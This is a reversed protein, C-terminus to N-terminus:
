VQEEEVMESFKRKLAVIKQYISDNSELIDKNEYLFMAIYVLLAGTTSLGAIFFLGKFSALTLEDFTQVGPNIDPCDDERGLWKDSINRMQGEIVKLIARSFTDVHPSGKPFAFGIGATKYTPGVILYKNCYKAQLLKLFPIGDVIASVGNNKSGDSLAKDYEQISNYKRLQEDPVGINELLGKVFSDAHYGVYDGREVIEHINTLTPQLNQITLMSSLSATYSSTLVLVVFVWVIVVFRAFNTILRERHAFVLTSLSFWLITGVQQHREGRFENNERHEFVWIAVGNYIFFVAITIWLKTELPKMFIWANKRDDVKVPVAMAIGEELYPYTFDVYKSRNSLIAIPGAVMDFKGLVIQYVLDNANGASKGDPTDYPIIQFNVVHPMADIVAYFVDMCFGNAYVMNTAPDRHADFFEKFGTQVPVGVRLKKNDWGTPVELTDGPWIITGLDDKDALYDFSQNNCIRHSLGTIPNWFGVHKEGKPGIVNVIQYSLTQLQGNVVDFDGSLGKLRINQIMPLIKSRMESITSSESGIRQIATALAFVLDYSWIGFMDLEVMDTEPYEKLVRRRWKKEFKTLQNSPAIYPKVGVVGQMYELDRPDLRHLLGTVVDTIVWVYGEAMMGVVNVNKFFRSALAPLMHVVFVRTRMAKLKDLQQRISGDTSYPSLIAQYKVQVGNNVMADFLYPVLARGFDTNESVFVVQTWGFSKILAAIPQAQTSSSQAIRIFYPNPKSSLDPSTATSIIPVKSEYAIDLVFNAQSSQQPGVLAIVQTNNILDVAAFAAQYNYKLDRLHYRIINSFNDHHGGYVDELAMLMCFWSSKGVNSDMDLIVGVGIERIGSVNAVMLMVVVGYFNMLFIRM